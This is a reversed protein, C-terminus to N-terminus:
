CRRGWYDEPRCAIMQGIERYIEALKDPGPAFYSQGNPQALRQLLGRDVDAGLGILLLQSGTEQLAQSERLAKASDAEQLGDTLLVVARNVRDGRGRAGSLEERGLRLGEDIRTGPSTALADLAAEFSDRDDTLPQSLRAADDFAVLALRDQRWDVQELLLRIADKAATLKEGSMSSSTDVAIVVDGAVREKRDREALVLPVFIHARVPPLGQLPESTRYNNFRLWNPEEERPITGDDNVNTIHYSQQNWVPRGPMWSEHGFVQIGAVREVASSTYFWNSVIEVHGDGDVDAIAPLTTSPTHVGSASPRHWRIHGDSGRFITLGEPGHFVIETTGDGDLDAASAGHYFHGFGVSVSWKLTGDSEFVSYRGGSEVGIEPLDDGDVDAIMPLGKFRGSTGEDQPLDIPGAQLVGDHGVFFMVRDGIMVVEAFPDQDLDAIASSYISTAGAFEWLVSGDSSYVRQGDIVEMDGSLDIDAVAVDVGTSAPREQWRVTGDSNLVTACIIIEADGDHDLDAIAANVKNGVCIIPESTWKYAGDHEFAVLGEPAPLSEQRLHGIIEPYGDNDIDGAVVGQTAHLYEGSDITFVESGDDGRIARLTGYSTVGPEGWQSVFVLEPRGDQDLDIVAPTSHVRHSEPIVDSGDWAWELQPPLFHSGPAASGAGRVGGLEPWAVLLLLIVALTAVAKYVGATRRREDTYIPPLCRALM